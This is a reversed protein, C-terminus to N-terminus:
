GRNPTLYKRQFKGWTTALHVLPTSTRGSVKGESLAVLFEQATDFSPLDVYTRGIECAMHADSGGGSLLNHRQAFSLARRNDEPLTVRSNFVEIIDILPVMKLLITEKLRSRRLRDFPHPICILGDQERIRAITEEPSLRPPIGEKLFLGTIEGASTDIEEGVIVKFPAIEQLHLAGAITNHDVLAICDLERKRVVAVITALSMQGDGSFQSHVHLDARLLRSEGEM